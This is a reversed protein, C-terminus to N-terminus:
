CFLVWGLEHIGFIGQKWFLSPCSAKRLVLLVLNNNEQVAWCDKQVSLFAFSSDKKAEV